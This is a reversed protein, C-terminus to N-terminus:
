RFKNIEPEATKWSEKDKLFPEIIKGVEIATEAPQKAQQAEIRELRKEVKDGRSEFWWLSAFLLIIVMVMLQVAFDVITGKESDQTNM